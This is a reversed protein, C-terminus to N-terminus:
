GRGSRARELWDRVGPAGRLAAVLAVLYEAREAPIDLGRVQAASPSAGLQRWLGAVERVERLPLRIPPGPRLPDLTVAADGVERVVAAAGGTCVLSGLLVQRVWQTTAM